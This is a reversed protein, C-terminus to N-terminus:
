PPQCTGCPNCVRTLSGYLSKNTPHSKWSTNSASQLMRTYTGGLRKQRAINLMWSESGYLIITEICAKFVKMKTEKKILSKWVKQLSHLANWSQVIRVSVNHKTDTYGGLYKFDDVCEIKSGDPSFFKAYTSPNLHM